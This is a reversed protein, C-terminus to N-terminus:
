RPWMRYWSGFYSSFVYCEGRFNPWLTRDKNLIEVADTPAETGNFILEPPVMDAATEESRDLSWEAICPSSKSFAGPAPKDKGLWMMYWGNKWSSFVYCQGCLNPWLTGM